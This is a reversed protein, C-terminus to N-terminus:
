PHVSIVIKVVYEIYLGINKQWLMIISYYWVYFM